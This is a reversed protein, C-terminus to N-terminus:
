RSRSDTGASTTAAIALFEALLSGILRGGDDILDDIPLEVLPVFVMHQEVLGEYAVIFLGHAIQDAFGDARQTLVDAYPAEGLEGDALRSATFTGASPFGVYRRTRSLSEPSTNVPGVAGTSTVRAAAIAASIASTARSPTETATTTPPPLM